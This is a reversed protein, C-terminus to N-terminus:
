PRYGNYRLWGAAEANGLEALQRKWVAAEDPDRRLGYWGEDYLHGLDQVAWWNGTEAARRLWSLGAELDQELGEGKLLDNGYFMMCFSDGTEACRRKWRLSETPDKPVGEGREYAASLIRMAVPQGQSAAQRALSLTREADVQGALGIWSLHALFAMSRPDSAEALAELRAVGQDILQRVPESIAADQRLSHFGDSGLRAAETMLEQARAPSRPGAVGTAYLFALTEATQAAPRNAQEELMALGRTRDAETEGTMLLAMALDYTAGPQHTMASAELWVMSEAPDPLVCEPQGYLLFKGLRAAAAANGAQASQRLWDLGEACLEAVGYPVLTLRAFDRMSVTNGAQSAQRYGELASGPDPSEFGRGTEQMWALNHLAWAEGGQAAPELWRRATRSDPAGDLGILAATGVLYQAYADGASARARVAEASGRYLEKADPVEIRSSSRGLAQILALRFAAVPDGTDAARAFLEFATDPAYRGDRGSQLAEAARLIEEVSGEGIEVPESTPLAAIPAPGVASAPTAVKQGLGGYAQRLEHNIWSRSWEGGATDPLTSRAEL